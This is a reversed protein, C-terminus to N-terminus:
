QFIPDSSLPNEFPDIQTANQGVTWVLVFRSGNADTITDVLAVSYRQSLAVLARNVEDMPIALQVVGDGLDTMERTGLVSAVKHACDFQAVYAGASAVLTVSAGHSAIRQARYSDRKAELFLSM